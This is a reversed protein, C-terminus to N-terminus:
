FPDEALPLDLREKIRQMRYRLRNTNRTLDFVQEALGSMPRLSDPIPMQGADLPAVAPEEPQLIPALNDALTSCESDLMGLAHRLYELDTNLDSPEATPRANTVLRDVPAAQDMARGAQAGMGRPDMATM